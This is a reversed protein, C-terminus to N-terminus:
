QPRAPPKSKDPAALGLRSRLQAALEPSFRGQGNLCQDLAAQQLENLPPLGVAKIQAATLSAQYHQWVASALLASGNAQDDEGLALNYFFTVFLGEIISKTKHVSSKEM